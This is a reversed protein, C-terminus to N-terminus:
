PKIIQGRIRADYYDPTFPNSIGDTDRVETEGAYINSPDINETDSATFPILYSTKNTGSDYTINTCQIPGYIYAAEEFCIKAAAFITQSQDTFDGVLTRPINIVDGQTIFLPTGQDGYQPEGAGGGSAVRPLADIQDSITELTDGDAGEKAGDDVITKIGANDPASYITELDGFGITDVWVQHDPNSNSVHEIRLQASLNPITGDYYDAVTGPVDFIITKDEDTAPLDRDTALVDDWQNTQFNWIQLEVKHQSSGPGFYRYTVYLRDHMEDINIYTTDIIWPVSEQVKLYIQNITQLSSVDGSLTTGAVVTVTAPPHETAFPTSALRTKIGRLIEVLTEDLWGAGRTEHVIDENNLTVAIGSETTPNGKWASSLTAERTSGAYDIIRRSQEAGTGSLVHVFSDNYFDDESSAYSPLTIITDTVAQPLGDLHWEHSGSGYIIYKSTNDPEVVWNDDITVIKTTGNYHVIHHGQGAGTGETIAIYSQWFIRDVSSEGAAITINNTGGGQATGDTYINGALQRLRRGSSGPINHTAGTLIRDWVGQGFFPHQSSSHGYTAIIYVDSEWEDGAADILQIYNQKSEMESASITVKVSTGGAPTVTPLTNLNAFAGGDSSIKVDGAAITPDVKYGSEGFVILPIFFIFEEGYLASKEM